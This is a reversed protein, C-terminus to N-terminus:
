GPPRNVQHPGSYYLIAHTGLLPFDLIMLQGDKTKIKLTFIIGHNFLRSDRVKRSHGLCDLINSVYKQPISYEPFNWSPALDHGQASINDVHEKHPINIIIPLKPCSLM